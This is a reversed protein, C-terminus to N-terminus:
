EEDFVEFPVFLNIIEVAFNTSFIKLPNGRILDFFDALVEADELSPIKNIGQPFRVWGRIVNSMNIKNSFRSKFRNSGYAILNCKGLEPSFLVVLKDSEGVDKTGLVIGKVRRFKKNSGM